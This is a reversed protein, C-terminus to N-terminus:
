KIREKIRDRLTKKADGKTEQDTTEKTDEMLQKMSKRGSELEAKDLMQDGNRDMFDLIRSRYAEPIEESQLNGDRNKDFLKLLSGDGPLLNSVLGMQSTQNKMRNRIAELSRQKADRDLQPRDVEQKATVLLTISGMEDNSERGWTIRKPPSHPNEPNNSSNDYAIDVILQTEKPLPIPDRYQYQDQWDLDWDDIRLLELIKGDPLKAILNMKSCIYHAHGSIEFGEVDIPLTYEDHIHFDSNGAPVDLGAGIGFIAPLQIPVLQKAPAKDAFYIALESQESEPKGTPHFHTQMVIDSNAPLFRALDGPLRNPTAGPVYGGLGRGVGETLKSLPNDSSGGGRVFNMGRFGPKGDNEKQTRLSGNTDVFFLAHHVASRATPRLEMAKIWKDENMGVPFVFSRYIDPGDAPVEFAKPMKVILDPEGLAWDTPFKPTSPIQDKDGIPCGEAVWSEFQKIEDDSLRRDHAFAVGTDSPKWPPMYRDRVVTLITESRKLVDEYQLLDFPGSQGPRHCSVCRDNVLKAITNSYTVKPSSREDANARGLTLVTSAICLAMATQQIHKM